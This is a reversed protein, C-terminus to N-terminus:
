IIQSENEIDYSTIIEDNIKYIIKIESGISM